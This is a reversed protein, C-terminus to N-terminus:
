VDSLATSVLQRLWQHSADQHVRRHWYQMSSLTIPKFPLKLTRVGRMPSLAEVARGPLCALLDTERVATPLTLYHGVRLAMRRQLGLRRLGVEFANEQNWIPAMVIHSESQFQKLSLTTRIRPHSERVLCVFEDDFLHHHLFGSGLHPLHGIALDVEGNELAYPYQERSLQLSVVTINPAIEKLRRMLKPLYIVEGIDTLALKFQIDSTAPDFDAALQFGQEVQRLAESVHKHLAIARDTPVMESRVRIFLPDGVAQRLRKLANSMASQTIHLKSGAKTVSRETILADLVRLLNLDLRQLNM